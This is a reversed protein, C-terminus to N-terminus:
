ASAARRWSGAPALRSARPVLVGADVANASTEMVRELSVGNEALKAPDVQTARQLREGYIDVAAVGLGAPPAAQDEWYSVSSM